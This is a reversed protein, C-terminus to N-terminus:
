SRRVVWNNKSRTGKIIRFIGDFSLQKKNVNFMIYIEQGQYILLVIYSDCSTFPVRDFFLQATRRSQDKWYIYMAVTHIEM